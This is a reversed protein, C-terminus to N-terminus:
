GVTGIMQRWFERVEANTLQDAPSPLSEPASAISYSSTLPSLQVALALVGIKQDLRTRDEKLEDLVSGPDLFALIRKRLKGKKRAESEQWLLLHERARGLTEGIDQVCVLIGPDNSLSGDSVRTQLPKLVVTISSLTGHLDRITDSTAELQDVWNYISIATSVVTALISLPDMSLKCSAVIVM